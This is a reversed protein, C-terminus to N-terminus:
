SIGVNGLGLGFEAFGGFIMFYGTFRGGPMSHVCGFVCKRRVKVARDIGCGKFATRIRWSSSFYSFWFNQQIKVLIGSKLEWKPWKAGEFGLGPSRLFKELASFGGISGLNRRTERLFVKSVM